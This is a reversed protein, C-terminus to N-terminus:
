EKINLILLFIIGGIFSFVFLSLLLVPTITANFVALLLVTITYGTCVAMFDGLNM